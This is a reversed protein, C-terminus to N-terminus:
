KSYAAFIHTTLSRQTKNFLIKMHCNIRLTNTKGANGQGNVTAEQPIVTPNVSPQFESILHRTIKCM